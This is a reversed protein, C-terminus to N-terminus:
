YIQKWTVAGVTTGPNTITTKTKLHSQTSSEDTLTGNQLSLTNSLNSPIGDTQQNASAKDSDSGNVYSKGTIADLQMLWGSGGGGCDEKNGGPIMTTVNLKGYVYETNTVIREGTTPLDMYWGRQASWDIATAADAVFRSTTNDTITRAFLSSRQIEDTNAPDDWLGYLSEKYTQNSPTADTTELYKGTGFYVMVGGSAHKSVSPRSTIPQSHVGDSAIATYIKTGNSWSTANTNSIDFRWVNGKLDGAYITDAYGDGDKDVVAPESLGSMATTTLASLLSGTQANLVFVTGCPYAGCAGAEPLVPANFGNSFIVVRTKGAELKVDVVAPAAQNFGMNAHTFEWKVRDSASSETVSSLDTLDLAYIGRGGQGLAGFAMRKNDITTLSIDGDVYYRHRTQYNEKAYAALSEPISANSSARMTQSPVYAFIESGGGEAKTRHADFVHVMGDNAGVIVFPRKNTVDLGYVPTSHVIDGLVHARARFLTEENTREGRLYNVLKQVFSLKAADTDGSKGSDALLNTIQTQTLEGSGGSLSTPAKFKTATKTEPDYSFIVRAGHDKADLITAASWLTSGVTGSSDIAKALVDGSWKAESFQATFQISNSTLRYSSTAIASATLQNNDRLQGFANELQTKLDEPATVPYYGSPTKEPNALDPTTKNDPDYDFSGWKAAYWLPPKLFFTDTATDGVTFTRTVSQWDETDIADLKTGAAVEVPAAITKSASNFCIKYTKNNTVTWGDGNSPYRENWNDAYHSIKFRPNDVGSFTQITCFENVATQVMATSGWANPTGRFFWSQATVDGPCELPKLKTTSSGRTDKSAPDPTDLYYATDGEQGNSFGDYNCDRMDRIDLYLGDATSGVGSLLYGAHQEIDGSAYDSRVKVILNNGHVRYQYTATMDADYDSGQEVDTFSVSFEGATDSISNVHFGVIENSPQMATSNPNIPSSDGTKDWKGNLYKWKRVSKATPVLTINRDGVKINIDSIPAAMAIAMTKVKSTAPKNQFIDHTNAWYAIGASAYSGEKTPESANGRVKSLDTLTKGTPAGSNNSDDTLTGIIYKKNYLGEATGIDKAMNAWTSFNGSAAAITPINDADFNVNNNSIILNYAPSCYLRATGTSTLTTDTFPDVWKEEKLKLTSDVTNDVTNDVNKATTFTSTAAHTEKGTEYFYRMAEALMEGIPNGWDHCKSNDRNLVYNFDTLLCEKYNLAYNGSDDYFVRPNKKDDWNGQFMSFKAIRIKDLADVIGKGTDAARNRINFVGTQSNIEKNFDAINRRLVGGSLHQDYSGTILGFDAKDKYSHMIGTPKYKGNPYLLCEERNNANIKGDVCVDVKLTFKTVTGDNEYNVDCIKSNSPKVLFVDTVPKGSGTWHRPRMNQFDYDSLTKPDNSCGKTKVKRLNLVRLTPILTENENSNRQNVRGFFIKNPNDGDKDPYPTFKHIPFAHTAGNLQAPDYPDYSRAWSHGDAPVYSLELTTANATDTDRLGGYLAKRLADMRSTTVYNLFNGSWKGGCDTSALNTVNSDPSFKNNTTDYTYCKFPDFYGYYEYAPNFRTEDASVGNATTSLDTTDNYAANALTHDRGLILMMMGKVNGYLFLPENSLNSLDEAHCSLMPALLSIVLLKRTLKPM